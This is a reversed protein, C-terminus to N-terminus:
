GPAGSGLLLVRSGSVPIPIPEQWNFAPALDHVQEVQGGGILLALRGGAAVLNAAVPLASAFHEVARMTVVDGGGGTCCPIIPLNRTPKPLSVFQEARGHFVETDTVALRRIVERLFTAKKHNSEILTLRIAPAWIKLPLGPFGAGSGVDIVHLRSVPGPFLHRAAFLSEGFHRTVIEEPTRVATLNIRANWNILINIYMLIDNLQSLALRTTLFPALLASIRAVDMLLWLWIVACHPFRRPVLCFRRTM